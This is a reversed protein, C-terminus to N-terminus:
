EYRGVALALEFFGPAHGRVRQDRHGGDVDREEGPRHAAQGRTQRLRGTQGQGEGRGACLGAGGSGSEGALTFIEPKNNQLSFSAQDVAMFKSTSFGQRITFIKTLKDIQLLNGNQEM